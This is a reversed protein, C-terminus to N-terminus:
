FPDDKTWIRTQAERPPRLKRGLILWWALILGAALLIAWILETWSKQYAAWRYILTCVPLPLIILIWRRSRAPIRLLVISMVALIVGLLLVNSLNM